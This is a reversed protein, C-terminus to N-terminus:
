KGNDIKKKDCPVGCSICDSIEKKCEVETEPHNKKYRKTLEQASVWLVTVCLIIGSSTLVTKIFDWLM